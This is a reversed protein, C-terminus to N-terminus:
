DPVAACPTDPNFPHPLGAAAAGDLFDDIDGDLVAEVDERTIGTRLDKAMKYPHLVYSRIQHGLGHDHWSPPPAIMHGEVIPTVCVSTFSTHRRAQPDSPAIRVLRHIGHEAYAREVGDGSLEIVANQVTAEKATVSYGRRAAWREYMHLVMEAWAHSEHGGAGATIEIRVESM